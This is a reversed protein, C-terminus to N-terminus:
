RNLWFVVMTDEVHKLYRDAGLSDLYETLEPHRPNSYDHWAIVGPRDMDLMTFAHGTDSKVTELDHGGDIWIMNLSSRFPAFDYTQSNGLLQTVSREWETGLFALRDEWEFHRQTISADHPHQTARLASERDLDLTFVRGGDPLNVALNLTNIGRFTGFEFVSEAQVHKMLAVLICTELIRPTNSDPLVLPTLRDRYSETPYLELAEHPRIHQM